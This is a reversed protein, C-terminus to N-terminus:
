LLRTITLIHYFNDNFLYLPHMVTEGDGLTLIAKNEEFVHLTWHTIPIIEVPHHTKVELKYVGNTEFLDDVMEYQFDTKINRLLMM